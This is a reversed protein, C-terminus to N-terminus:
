GVFCVQGVVVYDEESGWVVYGYGLGWFQYGGVYFYDVKGCVEVYLIYGGEFFLVFQWVAVGVQEFFGGVIQGFQVM